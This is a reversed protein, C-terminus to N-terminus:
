FLRVIVDRMSLPIVILQELHNCPKASPQASSSAAIEPASAAGLPALGALPPVVLTKVPQPAHEDDGILAGAVAAIPIGNADPVPDDPVSVGGIRAKADRSPDDAAARDIHADCAASLAGVAAPSNGAIAAGSVPFRRPAFAGAGPLGLAAAALIVEVGKRDKARGQVRGTGGLPHLQTPVPMAASIVFANEFM